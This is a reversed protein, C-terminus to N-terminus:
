LSVEIPVGVGAVGGGTAGWALLVRGLLQLVVRRLRLVGEDVGDLVGLHRLDLARDEAGQRAEAGRRDLLEVGDGAELRLGAGSHIPHPPLISSAVLM